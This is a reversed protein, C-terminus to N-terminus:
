LKFSIELQENGIDEVPNNNVLMNMLGFKAMSNVPNLVPELKILNTTDPPINVWIDEDIVTNIGWIWSRETLMDDNIYLRYRHKEAVVWSPKLCHVQVKINVENM